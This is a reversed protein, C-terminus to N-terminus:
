GASGPETSNAAPERWSRLSFIFLAVVICALGFFFTPDLVVHLAALWLSMVYSLLAILAPVLNFFMSVFGNDGATITIAVQYFVRAFSGALITGIIMLAIARWHDPALESRQYLIFLTTPILVVNAVLFNAAITASEDFGDFWKGILTAGLAYFFPVPLIYLWGGKLLNGSVDGMSGRTAEDMQSITVAMAGFFAGALCTFFVVPSVPIPVRAVLLAVLAAWFPSLNLIVSVIVPHTQSLGINYLLLGAIGIALISGFKWYNSPDGFLAALDRRSRSRTMLFPISILLAIQTVCVFQMTSLRKAALFSFPEQTALLCATAAGFLSGLRYNARGSM